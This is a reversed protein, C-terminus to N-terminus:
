YKFFLESLFKQYLRIITATTRASTAYGGSVEVRTYQVTIRHSFYRTKIDCYIRNGHAFCKVDGKIIKKLRTETNRAICTIM